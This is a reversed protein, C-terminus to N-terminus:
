VNINQCLSAIIKFYKALALKLFMANEFCDGNLPVFHRCWSVLWSLIGLTLTTEIESLNWDNRHHLMVDCQVAKLKERVGQKDNMYIGLFITLAQFHKWM